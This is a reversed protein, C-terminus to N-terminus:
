DRVEAAQYYQVSFWEQKDTWSQMLKWGAASALREFEAATYKYACARWIREGKAFHIIREGLRVLQDQLSVLYLEIRGQFKDYLALHGFQELQFNTGLERNLYRLGQLNFDATVPTSYGPLILHPDKGLDVGILLSGDDGCMQRLRKLFATAESPYLNGITSGPYFFLRRPYARMADPWDFSQDYDACIPLLTLAPYRTALEDASRALIEKSIDIPVYAKVQPLHDLLVRIKESSGSGFEILATEAELLTTLEPLSDRLITLETRTLYYEPTRCIEEFLQSGREDYNFKANLEKPEKELGSLVERYISRHDPKCDHVRLSPAKKMVVAGRKVPHREVILNGHLSTQDAYGSYM